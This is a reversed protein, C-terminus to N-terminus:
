TAARQESLTASQLCRFASPWISVFGSNMNVLQVLVLLAQKTDEPIVYAEHIRGALIFV